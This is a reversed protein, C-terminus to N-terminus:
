KAQKALTDLADNIGPRISLIDNQENIQGRIFDCTREALNPIALADLSDQLKERFITEVVKWGESNCIERLANAQALTIEGDMGVLSITGNNSM